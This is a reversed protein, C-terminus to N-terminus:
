RAPAELRLVCWTEIDRSAKIFFNTRALVQAPHIALWSELTTRHEEQLTNEHLVVYRVGRRELEDPPDKPLVQKVRRTGFPKWLSTEIDDGSALLGIVRVDPPVLARIPALSDGREGYVDYVKKARLVLRSDPHKAHWHVLLTRIPVLPRPPTLILFVLALAAATLAAVRFWARRVIWEHGCPLLVAAIMLPYFPVCVRAVGYMGSKMSYAIFAIFPAAWLCLRWLRDRSSPPFRSWFSTCRERKGERAIVVILSVLLLMSVGFGVGSGDEIPMEGLKWFAQEFNATMGDFLWKPWYEPALNNLTAANPLIPPAFNQYLMLVGNGIVGILPQKMGVNSNELVLGTWDGCYIQNLAATPLFSVLAAVFAAAVTKGVHRRVLPWSPLSAILWPLALPLNTAKSGTLLGVALLSLLFDGIRQSSRARLAFDVSALAFVAGFLNNGISGAELAFCYGTPLLWMWHWAVRPRVGLRTFTSFILGPLLLFGMVNVLFFGRDSRTLALFPATVWEFNCARNNVRTNASHIWHWQNESLWHLVRPLRYTLADYNSPAYLAGGLAAAILLLLFLFPLPRRFRRRFVLTAKVPIRQKENAGYKRWWFLTAIGAAFTVTGYGIANLQHCASLIWGTSCMLACWLIWARVLLPFPRM